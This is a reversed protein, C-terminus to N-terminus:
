KDWFGEFRNPSLATYRETNRIDKHGLYLQLARTDVGKSALNYGCGHRLQHPHAPLELQALKGARAIMKRVNDTTMQTKRESPFVWPSDPYIRKLSRLLKIQDPYLPQNTSTSGKNRRVYLNCSQWDVDSWSLRILESVRLGHRYLFLIIAGDRLGHRGIKKAATILLEVEDPRLYLRESNSKGSEAVIATEQIPTSTNM